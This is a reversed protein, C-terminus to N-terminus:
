IDTWSKFNHTVYRDYPTPLRREAERLVFNLMTFYFNTIAGGSEDEARAKRYNFNLVGRGLIYASDILHDSGLARDFRTVENKPWKAPKLDTEFAFVCHMYRARKKGDGFKGVDRGGLERDHPRLDRLKRAAVACKGVEAANLKSKIEVSALLAEAALICQSGSNFTFDAYRDYILIDLQPGTRGNLDVVEGSTVAFREPLRERMFAVLSEEREGGKIGSHGIDASAKLDAGFHEIAAAFRKNLYPSRPLKM